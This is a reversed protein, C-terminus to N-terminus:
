LKALPNGRDSLPLAVRAGGLRHSEFAGAVIEVTTRGEEGSCLPERNERVAAILDAAATLHGGVNKGLNAIPEQQGIGGTTIPQWVRPEKM